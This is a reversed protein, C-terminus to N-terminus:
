VEFTPLPREYWINLDSAEDLSVAGLRITYPEEGDLYYTITAGEIDWTGREPGSLHLSHPFSQPDGKAKLTAGPQTSGDLHEFALPFGNILYQPPEERGREGTTIEIEFVELRPM